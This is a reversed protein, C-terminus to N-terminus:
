GFFIQENVVLMVRARRVSEEERVHLLARTERCRDPDQAGPLIQWAVLVDDCILNVLHLGLAALAIKCFKEAGSIGPFNVRLKVGCFNEQMADEAMASPAKKM